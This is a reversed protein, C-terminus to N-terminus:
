LASSNLLQRLRERLVPVDQRIVQWLAKEDIMDYDHVLIHRLGIIKRWEIGTQEQRFAPTLKSAAEGIIEALKIFAFLRFDGDPLMGGPLSQYAQIIQDAADLMHELRQRDSLPKRM